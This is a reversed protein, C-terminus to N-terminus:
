LEDDRIGPFSVLGSNVEYISHDYVYIKLGPGGFVMVNCRLDSSAHKEGNDLRVLTDPVNYYKEYHWKSGNGVGDYVAMLEGHKWDYRWFPYGKTYETGPFKPSCSFLVLLSLIISNKM